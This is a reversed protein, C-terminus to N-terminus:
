LAEPEGSRGILSPDKRPARPNCRLPGWCWLREGVCVTSCQQLDVLVAAFVPAVAGLFGVCSSLVSGMSDFSLVAVCVCVGCTAELHCLM